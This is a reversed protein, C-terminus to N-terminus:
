LFLASGESNVQKKSLLLYCDRVPTLVIHVFPPSPTMISLTTRKLVGWFNKHVM